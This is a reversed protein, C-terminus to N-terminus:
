KITKTLKNKEIWKEYEPVYDILEMLDIKTIGKEDKLWKCLNKLKEHEMNEKKIKKIEKLEQLYLPISEEMKIMHDKTITDEIYHYSVFDKILDLNNMIVSDTLHNRIHNM